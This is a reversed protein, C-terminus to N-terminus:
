QRAQGPLGDKKALLHISPDLGPKVSSLILITDHFEVFYGVPRARALLAMTDTAANAGATALGAATAALTLGRARAHADFAELAALHREV